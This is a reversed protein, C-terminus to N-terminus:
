RQETHLSTHSKLSSIDKLLHIQGVAVIVDVLCGVHYLQYVGQISEKLHNKSM